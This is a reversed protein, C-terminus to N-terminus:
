YGPPMGVDSRIAAWTATAASGPSTQRVATSQGRWRSHIQAVRTLPPWPVPASTVPRVPMLGIPKVSRITIVSHSGGRRHTSAM